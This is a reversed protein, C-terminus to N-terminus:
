CPIECWVVTTSDASVGWTRSVADVVRLGRGDLRDAGPWQAAADYEPFESRHARQAVEIRVSDSNLTVSVELESAEPAHRVVNSVLESVALEAASACSRGSLYSRVLNRAERPSAPDVRLVQKTEAPM